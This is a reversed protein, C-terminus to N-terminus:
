GQILNAAAEVIDDRYQQRRSPDDEYQSALGVFITLEDPRGAVEWLKWWIYHAGEYPDVEGSVIGSAIYKALRLAAESTSIQPRGMEKLAREFLDGVDSETSYPFEALELLAPGSYGLKLAQLAFQQMQGARLQGLYWLAEAREINEVAAGM